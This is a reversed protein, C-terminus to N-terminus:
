SVGVTREQVLVTKDARNGSLPPSRLAHGHPGAAEPKRLWSTVLGIMLLAAVILAISRIFTSVGYRQVAAAMANMQKMHRAMLYCLLAIMLLYDILVAGLFIKGISDTQPPNYHHLRAILLALLPLAWLILVIIALLTVSKKPAQQETM